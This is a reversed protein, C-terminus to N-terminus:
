KKERRLIEQYVEYVSEGFPKKAEVAKRAEKGMQKAVDRHRYLYEIKEKIAEPDRIPVVYGTKGDEVIGRANETVIVPLGCAMAELTVRSLGETLSPLVLVDAEPYLSEPANTGPNWEANPLSQIQEKYWAELSEPMDGFSGVILLKADSLSARKWAELLYSLGKLPQTHAVYLVTFPHAPREVPIFRQVDIDPSAVFIRDSPFGARVYSEKAFDSMAIVYELENLHRVERNLRSFYGEWERYGLLNLEERDLAANTAPHATVAIDLTISRLAKARRVTRPLFYAGHFLTVDSRRLEFQAFMDFLRERMPRSMSSGTLLERARILWRLPTPIASVTGPVSFGANIQCIIQRLENREHFADIVPLIDSTKLNQKKGLNAYTLLSVSM